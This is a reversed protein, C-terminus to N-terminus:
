GLQKRHTMGYLTLMPHSSTQDHFHEAMRDHWYRVAFWCCAIVDVIVAVILLAIPFLMAALPIALVAAGM